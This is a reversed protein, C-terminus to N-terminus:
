MPWLGWHQLLRLAESGLTFAARRKAKSRLLAAPYGGAVIREALETGLREFRRNRFQTAFLADIFCSAKGALEDQTLPHLRLIPEAMVDM